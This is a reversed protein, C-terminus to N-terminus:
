REESGGAGERLTPRLDPPLEIEVGRVTLQEIKWNAVDEGEAALAHLGQIQRLADALDGTERNVRRWGMLSKTDFSVRYRTAETDTRDAM